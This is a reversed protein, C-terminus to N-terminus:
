SFPIQIILVSMFNVLLNAGYEDTTFGRCNDNNSCIDFVQLLYDSTMNLNTMNSEILYKTNGIRGPFAMMDTNLYTDISLADMIVCHHTLNM